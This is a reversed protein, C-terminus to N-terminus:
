RRLWKEWWFRRRYLLDIARVTEMSSAATELLRQLERIDGGRAELRDQARMIAEAILLKMYSEEEADM